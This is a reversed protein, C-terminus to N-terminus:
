QYVISQLYWMTQFDNFGTKTVNEIFKQCKKQLLLISKLFLLKKGNASFFLLQHHFM